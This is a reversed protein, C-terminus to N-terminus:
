SKGCIYVGLKVAPKLSMTDPEFEPHPVSPKLAVFPHSGTVPSPVGFKGTSFSRHNPRGYIIYNLSPCHKKCQDYVRNINYMVMENIDGTVVGLMLDHTEQFSVLGELKTSASSTAVVQLLRVLATKVVTFSSKVCKARLISICGKEGRKYEGPSRLVIRQFYDGQAGVIALKIAIKSRM